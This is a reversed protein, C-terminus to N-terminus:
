TRLPHDGTGSVRQNLWVTKKVSFRRRRTLRPHRLSCNSEVFEFQCVVPSFRRFLKNILSLLKSEIFEIQCVIPSVKGILKNIVTQKRRVWVSLCCTLNELYNTLLLDSNVKSWSLNVFLIMSVWTKTITLM